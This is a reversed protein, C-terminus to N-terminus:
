PLNKGDLINRVRTLLTKSNFPKYILLRHLSDDTLKVHRDDSFGSILQIKITPYNQQVITALEYGDM